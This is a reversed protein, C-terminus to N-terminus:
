KRYLFWVNFMISRTQKKFKCFTCSSGLPGSIVPNTMNKQDLSRLHWMILLTVHHRFLLKWCHRKQLVLTQWSWSELVIQFSFILSLILSYNTQFELMLKLNESKWLIETTDLYWKVTIKIRIIFYYKWYFTKSQFFLIQYMQWKM